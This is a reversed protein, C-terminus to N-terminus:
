SFGRGWVQSGGDQQGWGGPPEALLLHHTKARTTEPEQPSVQLCEREGKHACQQASFAKSVDTQPVRHQACPHDWAGTQSSSAPCVPTRLGQRLRPHQACPPDQAGTQPSSAPCVPPGSGRDPALISPVRHTRLGTQPSSAPCVPTRPGQRLSPHQACPSTRPGQRPHPISSMRCAERLRWHSARASKPAWAQTLCPLSFCPGSSPATFVLLM